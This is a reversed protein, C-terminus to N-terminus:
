DSYEDFLKTFAEIFLDRGNEQGMYTFDIESEYGLDKISDTVEFLLDMACAYATRYGFTPFNYYYVMDEDYTATGTMAYAFLKPAKLDVIM